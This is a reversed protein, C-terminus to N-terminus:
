VMFSGHGIHGVSPLLTFRHMKAVFPVYQAYQMHAGHAVSRDHSLRVSQLMRNRSQKITVLLLPQSPAWLWKQSWWVVPNQFFGGELDSGWVETMWLWVYFLLLLQMKMMGSFDHM